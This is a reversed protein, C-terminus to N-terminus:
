RDQQEQGQKAYSRLPENAPPTTGEAEREGPGEPAPEARPRLGSGLASRPRNILTKIIPWSTYIIPTRAWKRTRTNM